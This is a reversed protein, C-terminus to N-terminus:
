AALVHVATGDDVLGPFLDATHLPIRVCGHSAPQLPVSLSGHVAVGERTFYVPNYIRGLEATRWGDIRWLVPFAGAPTM